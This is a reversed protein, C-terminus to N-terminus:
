APVGADPVPTDDSGANDAQETDVHREGRLRRRAEDALMFKVTRGLSTGLVAEPEKLTGSDGPALWSGYQCHFYVKRTGDVIIRAHWYGGTPHRGFTDQGRADKDYRIRRLEYDEGIAQNLAQRAARSAREVATDTRAV